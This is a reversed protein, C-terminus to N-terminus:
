KRWIPRLDVAETMDMNNARMASDMDAATGQKFKKGNSWYGYEVRKGDHMAYKTKIENNFRVDFKTTVRM